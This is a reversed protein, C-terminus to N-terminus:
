KKFHEKIYKKNYIKNLRKIEKKLYLNWRVKFFSWPEFDFKELIVEKATNDINSTITTSVMTAPLM